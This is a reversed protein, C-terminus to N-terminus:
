IEKLQRINPCIDKLVIVMNKQMAYKGLSVSLSLQDGEEM